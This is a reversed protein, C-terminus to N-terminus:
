TVGALLCLLVGHQGFLFKGITLEGSAQQITVCVVIMISDQCQDRFVADERDPSALRLANDGIMALVGSV